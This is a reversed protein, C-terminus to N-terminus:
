SLVMKDTRNQSHMELETAEMILLIMYRTKTSSMKYGATANYPDWNISQEVCDSFDATTSCHYNVPILPVDQQFVNWRPMAMTM